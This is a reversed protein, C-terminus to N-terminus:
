TRFGGAGVLGIAGFRTRHPQAGAEIVVVNGLKEGTGFPLVM